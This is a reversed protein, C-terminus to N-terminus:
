AGMLNVKLTTWQPEIPDGTKEDLKDEFAQEGEAIGANVLVIDVHGHLAITEKFLNLQSQWSTADTAIFHL